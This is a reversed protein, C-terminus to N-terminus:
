VAIRDLQAGVADWDPNDALKFADAYNIGVESDATLPVVYMWSADFSPGLMASVVDPMSNLVSLCIDHVRPLEDRVVDVVISDHVTSVLVSELNESRMLQEIAVMSLGMMDSASSQILHNVGSRLAKSQIGRDESHVEDFVRVRGTLSVACGHQQIFGKYLGIHRRMSPYTDFFANVTRECEEISMYVGAEALTSQLGYAGGGYGTLFNCTKGIKRKKDLAKAEDEKSNKQLWGMYTKEFHEYPVKFIKSTTLSHLDVGKRYASVMLPDGCAAALLRLEIQSLDSQYICGRAGFRSHYLRKVISGSSIQQLNPNSNKTVLSNHVFQHEGEVEIDVCETEVEVETKVIDIERLNAQLTHKLAPQSASLKRLTGRSVKKKHCKRLDRLARYTVGHNSLEAIDVGSRALSVFSGGAITGNAEILGDKKHASWYLEKARSNHLVCIDIDYRQSYVVTEPKGKLKRKNKQLRSHLQPDYGLSDLLDTVGEALAKSYTTYRSFGSSTGGDGEFLGRLYAVKVKRPSKAVASPVCRKSSKGGCENLLLWECVDRSALDITPCTGVDDTPCVNLIREWENKVLALLENEGWGFAINIRVPTKNQGDLTRKYGKRIGKNVSPRVHHMEMCGEAQYHGLLFAIDETLVRPLTVERGERQYRKEPINLKQYKAPHPAEVGCTYVCDQGAVLEGAPIWAAASYGKSALVRHEVSQRVV